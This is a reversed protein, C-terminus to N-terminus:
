RVEEWVPAAPPAAPRSPLGHELTLKMAEDIPIHVVGQARNIWGYSNLEKAWGAEVQALHVADDIELRPAPPLPHELLPQAPLVNAERTRNFVQNTAIVVVITLLLAAVLLIGFLIVGRINTGDEEHGRLKALDGM